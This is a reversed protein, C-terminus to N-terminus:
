LKNEEVQEWQIGLAAAIKKLTATRNRTEKAEMKAYSPQSIGMRRAVEAQSLGLYERWARILSLGGLTSRKVVEHPLTVEEDPRRDEVGEEAKRLLATYEDYPIVAYMPKGDHHIIQPETRVNM